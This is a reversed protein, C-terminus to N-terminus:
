LSPSAFALEPTAHASTHGGHVRLEQAATAVNSSRVFRYWSTPAPAFLDVFESPTVEAVVFALTCETMSPFAIAQPPMSAVVVTVVVVIRASSVLDRRALTAGFFRVGNWTLLTLCTETRRAFSKSCLAPAHALQAINLRRRCITQCLGAQIEKTSCWIVVRVRRHWKRTAGAVEVREIHTIEHPPPAPLSILCCTRCM